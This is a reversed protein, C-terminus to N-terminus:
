IDLHSTWRSVPEARTAAASSESAAAEEDRLVVDAEDQITLSPFIGKINRQDESRSRTAVQPLRDGMCSRISRVVSPCLQEDPIWWHNNIEPLGWLSAM